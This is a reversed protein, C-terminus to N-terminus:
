AVVAVEGDMWDYLLQRMRKSPLYLQVPRDERVASRFVWQLLEALAFRDHDPKIDRLRRYFNCLTPNIYINRLYALHTREKYDNTARLNCAVYSKKFGDPRLAEEYEAICSWMTTKIAAGFRHRLVNRTNLSIKETSAQKQRSLWSSSFASDDVGIDNLKDDDLVQILGALSKTAEAELARSWPVLKREKNLTLREVDAGHAALYASMLSGDWLYTLATVSNFANLLEIPFEWFMLGDKEDSSLYYLRGADCDRKLQALHPGPLRKSKWYIRDNEGVVIDGSDLLFMVDKPDPEGTASGYNRTCDVTEDIILHYGLAELSTLTQKNWNQFLQHTSVINRGDSVLKHFDALKSGSQDSPSKFGLEPVSNIFRQVEDLYPTIVIYRESKPDAQRLENIIHTTKGSGMVSDIVRFETM